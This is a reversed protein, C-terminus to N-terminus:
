DFIETIIATVPLRCMPCMLTGRRMQEEFPAVCKLCTCRHATHGHAFPVVRPSDMCVVCMMINGTGKTSTTNSDDVSKSAGRNVNSGAAKAKDLMDRLKPRNVINVATHILSGINADPELENDADNAQILEQLQEVGWGAFDKPTSARRRVMATAAVLLETREKICEIDGGNSEIFIHLQKLPWEEMQQCLIQIDVGEPPPAARLLERVEDGKAVEIPTKGKNDSVHPNAGAELLVCAIESQAYIAALHLPTLGEKQVANVDAGAVILSRVVLVNRSISKKITRAVLHLATWGNKDAANVNAGSAILARVVDDWGKLAAVQLATSGFDGPADVTAPVGWSGNLLREVKALNGERAAVRLAANVDQMM